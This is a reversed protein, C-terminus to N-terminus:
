IQQKVTFDEKLACRFLQSFIGYHALFIETVSKNEVTLFKISGRSARSIHVPTYLRDAAARNAHSQNTPLTLRPKRRNAAHPKPVHNAVGM